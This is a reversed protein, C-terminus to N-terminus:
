IRLKAENNTIKLTPQNPKHWKIASEILIESIDHREIKNTSSIPTGPQYVINSASRISLM